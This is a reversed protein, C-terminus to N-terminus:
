GSIPRKEYKVVVYHRTRWMMSFEKIVVANRYRSLSAALNFFSYDPVMYIIKPDSGYYFRRVGM